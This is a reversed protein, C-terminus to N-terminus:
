VLRMSAKAWALCRPNGAHIEEHSIAVHLNDGPNPMHDRNVLDLLLQQDGIDVVVWHIYKKKEVFNQVM